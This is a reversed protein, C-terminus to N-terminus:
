SDVAAAAETLTAKGDDTIVGAQHAADIGDTGAVDYAVADPTTAVNGAVVGDATGVLGQIDAAEDGVAMRTAIIGEDTLAYLYAVDNGDGLSQAIDTALTTLLADNMQQTEDMKWLSKDIVVEQFVLIIASTEAPLKACAEKVHKKDLSGEVLAKTGAAGITAGVAAGAAVGAPGLLCCALAGIVGGATGSTVALPSAMEKVKLKSSKNSRVVAFNAVAPMDKAKALSSLVKDATEEDTFASILAVTPLLKAM